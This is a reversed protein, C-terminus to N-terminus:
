SLAAELEAFSAAEAPLELPSGLQRAIQTLSFLGRVIARGSAETQVVLAHQRRAGQLTAIVDGVQASEVSALELAELRDAPTMIDSVVIDRHHMRREQALAVPREGLIDAASIIGALQQHEDLVFLLRVGRRIMFAEAQALTDDPSIVAAGVQKLDTMVDVASSAHSVHTAAQGPRSLGISGLNRLARLPNHRMSSRGPHFHRAQNVRGAPNDPPATLSWSTTCAGSTRMTPDDLFLQLMAATPDVPQDTFAVPETPPAEGFM